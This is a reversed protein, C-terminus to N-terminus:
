RQALMVTLGFDDAVDVLIWSNSVLQNVRTARKKSRSVMGPFGVM